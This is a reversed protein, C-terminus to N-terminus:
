NIIEQYLLSSPEKSSIVGTAYLIERVSKRLWVDMVLLEGYGIKVVKLIPLLVLCKIRHGTDLNRITM